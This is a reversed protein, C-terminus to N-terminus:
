IHILSLGHAQFPTAVIMVFASEFNCLLIVSQYVSSVSVMLDCAVQAPDQLDWAGLTGGYAYDM